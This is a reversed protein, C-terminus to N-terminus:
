NLFSFFHKAVKKRLIYWAQYTNIYGFNGKVESEIIKLIIELLHRNTFWAISDMLLKVKLIQM